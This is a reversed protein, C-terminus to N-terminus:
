FDVKKLTRPSNLSKILAIDHQELNFWEGTHRKEKFFNHLHTELLGFEKHEITHIVEWDFPPIVSFFKKTNVDSTKGIKVRNTTKEQLFYVVSTPKTKTKPEKPKKYKYPLPRQFFEDSLVFKEIQEFTGNLFNSLRESGFFMRSFTYSINVISVIEDKIERETEVEHQNKLLRIYAEDLFINNKLLLTRMTHYTDLKIKVDTEHFAKKFLFPVYWYVYNHKNKKNDIYKFDNRINILSQRTDTKNGELLFKINRLTIHTGIFDKFERPRLKLFDEDIELM